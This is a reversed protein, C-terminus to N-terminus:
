FENSYNDGNIMLEGHINFSDSLHATISTGFMQKIIDGILGSSPTIMSSLYVNTIQPYETLKSAINDSQKLFSIVIYEGDEEYSVTYETGEELIVESYGDWLTLYDVGQYKFPIDRFVFDLGNQNYAYERGDAMFVFKTGYSKSYDYSVVASTSANYASNTIEISGEYDSLITYDSQSM